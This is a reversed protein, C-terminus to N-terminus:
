PSSWHFASNANEFLAPALARLLDDTDAGRASVAVEGILKREPYSLCLAAMRVGGDSLKELAVNLMFGKLKKKKVVEAAAVATENKPALLVGPAAAIAGRLESDALRVRKEGLSGGKDYIKGLALYLTAPKAKLTIAALASEIETKAGTDPDAKHKKLCAAANESGQAGLSKAAATRVLPSADNLAACLPKLVEAPKFNALIMAAQARLRPDKAETLQKLVHSLREDAAACLSLAFVLALAPPRM